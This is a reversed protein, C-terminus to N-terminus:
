NLKLIIIKRKRKPKQSINLKYRVTSLFKYNFKKDPSKSARKQYVLEDFLESMFVRKALYGTLRDPSSGSVEGKDSTRELWSLQLGMKSNEANRRVKVQNRLM